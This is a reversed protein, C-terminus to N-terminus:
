HTLLLDVLLSTYGSQVVDNQEFLSPKSHILDKTKACVVVRDIIEISLRGKSVLSLYRM